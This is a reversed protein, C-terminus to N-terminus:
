DREGEGGGKKALEIRDQIIHWSRPLGSLAFNVREM